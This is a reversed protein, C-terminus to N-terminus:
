SNRNWFRKFINARSPKSEETSTQDLDIEPSTESKVPEVTEQVPNLEQSTTAQAVRNAEDSSEYALRWGMVYAADQRAQIVLKDGPQIAGMEPSPGGAIVGQPPINANQVFWDVQGSGAREIGVWLKSFGLRTYRQTKPNIHDLHETDGVSVEIQVIKQGPQLDLKIADSSLTAGEGPDTGLEYDGHGGNLPIAGKYIGETKSGGGYTPMLQNNEINIFSTGPCYVREEYKVGELEPFSVVELGHIQSVSYNPDKGVNTVRIAEPELRGVTALWDHLVENEPDSSSRPEAFKDPDYGKPDAWQLWQQSNKDYIEVRSYAGYPDHRDPGIDKCFQEGKRHRLVLDRLFAEKKDRFEEPIM